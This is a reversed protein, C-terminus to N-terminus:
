ARKSAVPSRARGGYDGLLQRGEETAKGALIRYSAVTPTPVGWATRAPVDSRLSPWPTEDVHIVPAAAQQGLAYARNASSRHHSARRVTWGVRANTVGLTGERM